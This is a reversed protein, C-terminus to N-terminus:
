VNSCEIVKLLSLFRLHSLLVWLNELFQYPNELDIMITILFLFVANQFIYDSALNYAYTHMCGIVSLGWKFCLCCRCLISPCIIGYACPYFRMSLLVNLVVKGSLTCSLALFAWGNSVPLLGKSHLLTHLLLTEPSCM